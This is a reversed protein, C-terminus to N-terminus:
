VHPNTQKALFYFTGEQGYEPRQNPLFLKTNVM